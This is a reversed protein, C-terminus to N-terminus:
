RSSSTNSRSPRCCASRRARSRGRRKRTAAPPRTCASRCTTTSPPRGCCTTARPGLVPHRRGPHGPDDRRVLRDQPRPRDRAVRPRSRRAVAHRHRLLSRADAGRVRVVLHQLGRVAGVPVRHRTDPLAADRDDPLAGRRRRRRPRTRGHPDGPRLRRRLRRGGLSGQGASRRPGAYLGRAPRDTALRAGECVLRDTTEERVLRPGRDRFREITYIQWLDHPEVVHSDASIVDYTITM